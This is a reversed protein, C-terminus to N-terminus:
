DELPMDKYSKSTDSGNANGGGTRGKKAKDDAAKKRDAGIKLLKDGAVEYFISKIPVNARSPHLAFRKAKAEFPKFDPNDNLAAAIDREVEQAAAKAHFPALQKAVEKAVADTQNDDGETDAGDADDGTSGGSKKADKKGKGAAAKAKEQK